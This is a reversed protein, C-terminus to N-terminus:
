DGATDGVADEVADEVTASYRFLGADTGLLYIFPSKVFYFMTSGQCALRGRYVEESWPSIILKNADSSEDTLPEFIMAYDRFLRARRQNKFELVRALTSGGHAVMKVLGFVPVIVKPRKQPDPCLPGLRYAQPPMWKRNLEICYENAVRDSGSPFTLELWRLNLFGDKVIALSITHDDRESADQEVDYTDMEDRARDEELPESSAHGTEEFARETTSPVTEEVVPEAAATAGLSANEAKRKRRFTWWRRRKETAMGAVEVPSDREAPGVPPSESEDAEENNELARAIPARETLIESDEPRPGASSPGAEQCGGGARGNSKKQANTDKEAVSESHKPPGMETRDTPTKARDHVEEDPLSHITQARTDVGHHTQKVATRNEVQTKDDVDTDPDTETTTEEIRKKPQGQGGRSLGNTLDPAKPAPRSDLHYCNEAEEM